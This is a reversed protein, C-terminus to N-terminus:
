ADESPTLQVINFDESGLEDEAFTLASEGSLFPGVFNLGDVVNGVIVIHM